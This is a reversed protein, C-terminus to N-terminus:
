LQYTRLNGARLWGEFAAKATSPDIGPVKLLRQLEPHDFLQLMRQGIAPLQDASAPNYLYILDSYGTRAHEALDNLVQREIFSAEGALNTKV